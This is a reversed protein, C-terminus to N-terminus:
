GCCMRRASWTGTSWWGRRRRGCGARLTSEDDLQQLQTVQQRAALPADSAQLQAADPMQQRGAINGASCAAALPCRIYLTWLRLAAATNNM